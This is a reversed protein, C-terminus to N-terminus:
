TSLFALDKILYQSRMLENSGGGAANTGSVCYKISRILYKIPAELLNFVLIFHPRIGQWTGQQASVWLGSTEM